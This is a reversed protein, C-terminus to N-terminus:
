DAWGRVFGSTAGLLLGLTISIITAGVGVELSVQAGYLVRLFEDRGLTSDSGLIYLQSHANGEADLHMVHSMPGVPLGNADLGGGPGSIPNIDNPGHGLFHKALPAGAFAVFFLLIIFIGGAIAVKDRKFRRWVQEWYGRAEVEIEGLEVGSEVAVAGALGAGGGLQEKETQSM